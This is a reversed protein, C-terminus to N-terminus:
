FHATKRKTDALDGRADEKRDDGSHGDQEDPRQHEEIERQNRTSGHSVFEVDVEGCFAKAFKQSSSHAAVIM